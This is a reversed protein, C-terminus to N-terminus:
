TKIVKLDEQIHEICEKLRSNDEQNPSCLYFFFFGILSMNSLLNIFLSYTKMRGTTTHPQIIAMLTGTKKAQDADYMTPTLM